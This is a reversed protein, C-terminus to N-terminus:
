TLSKKILTEIRTRYGRRPLDKGDLWDTINDHLKTSFNGVLKSEEIMGIVAFIDTQTPEEIEAIKLIELAVDRIDNTLLEYEYYGSDNVLKVPEGNGWVWIGRNPRPDQESMDLVDVITNPVLTSFANGSALVRNILVKQGTKRNIAEDRYKKESEEKLRKVEAEQELRFRVEAARQKFLDSNIIKVKEKIDYGWYGIQHHDITAISDDDKLYDFLEEVTSKWYFIIQKPEKIKAMLEVMNDVQYKYVLTTQTLITDCWLLSAFFENEDELYQFNNYVRLGEPNLVEMAEEIEKPLNFANELVVLKM